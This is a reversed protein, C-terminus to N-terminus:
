FTVTLTTSPAFTVSYTVDVIQQTSTSATTFEADYYDGILAMNSLPTADNFSLSTTYTECTAGSTGLDRPMM